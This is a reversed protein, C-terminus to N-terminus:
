GIKYVTTKNYTIIQAKLFLNQLFRFSFPQTISTEFYTLIFLSFPLLRQLIECKEPNRGYYQDFILWFRSKAQFQM